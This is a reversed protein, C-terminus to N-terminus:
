AGGAAQQRRILTDRLVEGFGTLGNGDFVGLRRLLAIDPELATGDEAKEIAILVAKEMDTM